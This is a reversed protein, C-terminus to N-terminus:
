CDSTASEGSNMVDWGAMAVSLAILGLWGKGAPPRSASVKRYFIMYASKKGQFMKEIAQPSIPSVHTDNFEFWCQGAVPAPRLDRLLLFIIISNYM